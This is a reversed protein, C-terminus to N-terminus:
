DPILADFSKWNCAVTLLGPMRTLTRALFGGGWLWYKRLRRKRFYKYLRTRTEVHWAILRKLFDSKAHHTGPYLVYLLGLM